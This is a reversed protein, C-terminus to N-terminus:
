KEIELIGWNMLMGGSIQIYGDECKKTYTGLGRGEYTFPISTSFKHVRFNSVKGGLWKNLTHLSYTNYILAIQSSGSQRTYDYVKSYIDVDHDINFLSSIYLKGGKKTVRILELLATKPKEIWSLTQWCFVMDFTSDEFDLSYINGVYYLFRDGFRQNLHKAAEIAEELYDVLHFRCKQNIEALHYSLTGEWM